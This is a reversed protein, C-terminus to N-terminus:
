GDCVTMWSHDAHVMVAAAAERIMENNRVIYMMGRHFAEKQDRLNVAVVMFLHIRDYM